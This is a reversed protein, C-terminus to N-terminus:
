FYHMVELSLSKPCREAERAPVLVDSKHSMRSPKNMSHESESSSSLGGGLFNQWSSSGEVLESAELDVGEEAGEGLVTIGILSPEKCSKPM